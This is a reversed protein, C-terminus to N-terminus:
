QGLRYEGLPLHKGDAKIAEATRSSSVPVVQSIVGEYVAAVM